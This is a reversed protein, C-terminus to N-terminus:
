CIVDLSAPIVKIVLDEEVNIPEGDIHAIDRHHHIKIEKGKYGALIYINGFIYKSFYKIILSLFVQDNIKIMPKSHGKLYKSIRTGKGGALLVLDLKEKM